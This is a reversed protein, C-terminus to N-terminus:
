EIAMKVVVHVSRLQRHLLQDILHFLLRYKDLSLLFISHLYDVLLLSLLMKPYQNNQNEDHREVEELSHVQELQVVSEVKDHEQIDVQYRM